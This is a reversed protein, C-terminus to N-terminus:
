PYVLIPKESYYIKEKILSRHFIAKFFPRHIKRFAIISAEELNALFTLVASPERMPITSFKLEDINVKQQLEHFAEEVEPIGKENIHLVEAEAKFLATHESFKKLALADGEKIDSAFIMKKLPTFKADTPIVLLARNLTHLLDETTSGLISRVWDKGKSGVVIFEAQVEEAAKAIQLNSIGTKLLADIQVDIGMDKAKKELRKKEKALLSWDADSQERFATELYFSPVMPDVIPVTVVHVLDITVDFLGSLSLVYDAANKACNSFDTAVLISKTRNKLM